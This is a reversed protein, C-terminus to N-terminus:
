LKLFPAEEDLFVDVGETVWYVRRDAKHWVEWVKCKAATDLKHRDQEHRRVNYQPTGHTKDLNPFRNTFERESLYGAFAVWGVESWKRAPEHLFDRRDMHESCVRKGDEDSEYLVRPAGRASAILDDRTSLMVQDFDGRDFSSVLCREILESATTAVKDRDQFRPAVVPQPARSYVAPKMIELSAWFLDFEQDTYYFSRGAALEGAADILRDIRDCFTFYEQMDREADCLADWVVKSSKPEEKSKFTDPHALADTM